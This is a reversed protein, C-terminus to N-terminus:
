FYKLIETIVEIQGMPQESTFRKFFFLTDRLKEVGICRITINKNDM